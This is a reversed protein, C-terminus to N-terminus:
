QSGFQVSPPDLLWRLRHGDTATLNDPVLQAPFSPVRVVGRVKAHFEEASSAAPDIFHCLEDAGGAGGFFFRASEQDCVRRVGAPPISKSADRLPDKAAASSASSRSSAHDDSPAQSSSAEFVPQRRVRQRPGFNLDALRGQLALATQSPDEGEVDGNVSMRLTATVCWAALLAQCWSPQICARGSFM